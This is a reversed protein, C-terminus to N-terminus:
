PTFSVGFLSGMELAICKMAALQCIKRVSMLYMLLEGLSAKARSNQTALNYMSLGKDLKGLQM